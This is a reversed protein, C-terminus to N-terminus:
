GDTYYNENPRKPGLAKHETAEKCGWKTVSAVIVPM